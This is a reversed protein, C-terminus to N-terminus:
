QKALLLGYFSEWLCLITACFFEYVIVFIVVLHFFGNVIEFIYLKLERGNDM